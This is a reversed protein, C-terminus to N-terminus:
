LVIKKKRLSCYLEAKCYLNKKKVIYNPCYGLVTRCLLNKKKENYIKKKEKM